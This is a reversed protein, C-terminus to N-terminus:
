HLLAEVKPLLEDYTMRGPHYMAVKGARNVLVITPVSSAGYTLFNATSVPAAVDLLAAYSRQRVADIYPLETALSVDQAADTFGYPQTPLLFALGQPAFERHLRAIVPATAKCDGCWHAWFFLLVPKGRLAELSTPKPGLYPDLTLAPALKGELTLLNLNKQLRTVISTKEYRSIEARLLAVAKAREGRAALAQAQVEIAAGLAIPLHREKDLPQERALKAALEYTKQAADMAADYDHKALEARAIWSMAELLEPNVGSQVRAAAVIKQASDFQGSSAAARVEAIVDARAKAGPALLVVTLAVLGLRPVLQGLPVRNM